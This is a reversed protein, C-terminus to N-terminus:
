KGSLISWTATKKLDTEFDAYVINLKTKEIPVYGKNKKGAIENQLEVPLHAGYTFYEKRQTQLKKGRRGWCKLYTHKTFTSRDNPSLETHLLIICWIKDHVGDKCWGIFKLDM